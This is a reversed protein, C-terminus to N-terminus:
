FVFVCSRAHAGLAGLMSYDTASHQWLVLYTDARGDCPSPVYVYANVAHRAHTGSACARCNGHISIAAWHLRTLQQYGPARLRSRHSRSKASGSAHLAMAVRARM